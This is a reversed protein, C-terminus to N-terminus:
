YQAYLSVNDMHLQHQGSVQDVKTLGLTQSEFVFRLYKEFIKHM